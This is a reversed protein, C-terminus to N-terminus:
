SRDMCTRASLRYIFCQCEALVIMKRVSFSLVSRSATISPVSPAYLQRLLHATDTTHTSFTLHHLPPPRLRPFRNTYQPSSLHLFTLTFAISVLAILISRSWQSLHAAQPSFQEMVSDRSSPLLQPYAYLEIGGLTHSISTSSLVTTGAGRPFGIEEPGRCKM